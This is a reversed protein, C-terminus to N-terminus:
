HMVGTASVSCPSTGAFAMATRLRSVVPQRADRQEAFRALFFAARLRGKDSSGRSAGRDSRTAFASTTAPRSTAPWLEAARRSRWAGSRRTATTTRDPRLDHVSRHAEVPQVRVRAVVNPTTATSTRSSDRCRTSVSRAAPRRARRTVHAYGARFEGQGLPVGVSIEYTEAKFAQFKVEDYFGM